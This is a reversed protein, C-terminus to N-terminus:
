SYLIELDRFENQLIIPEIELINLYFLSCMRVHLEYTESHSFHM